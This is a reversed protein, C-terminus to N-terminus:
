RERFTRSIQEQLPKLLFELPTRVGTEILAEAPMGPVLKLDGLSKLSEDSISVRTLFYAQGPQGATAAERTLDASIHAVVGNVSPTTRQNGAMIRVQVPAGKVIQDIDVPAVRAEVVLQDAQPVILMITEGAGIVGGVTHVTLQLVTGNGPSRIDIRRLQDVAAIMREKLEAVKGEIERLEKLVETSFDKELQIIQLETESIRGRARAIDAGLQGHEGELKAQDRQLAMYRVISVLNKAFLESVGKLEQAILAIESEKAKRQSTLGRVEETIQAIREQLLSRQGLRSQRRSEFLKQEGSIAAAVQTEGGRATLEEPFFIVEANDREATLRAHRTMLEDLQSRIIGLNARPVTDDLRVVVQGEEVVSGDRVLIQGVIGGTPHQVKKVNSEVVVFGPAIVAGSLQAVAAWGGVGFILIAVTGLGILNLKRITRHLESNTSM